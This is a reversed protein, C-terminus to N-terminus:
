SPSLEIGAIQRPIESFTVPLLREGSFCPIQIILKM